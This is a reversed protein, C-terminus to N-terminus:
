SLFVNLMIIIHFPSRVPAFAFAIHKYSIHITICVFFFTTLAFIVLILKPCEFFYLWTSNSVQNTKLFDETKENLSQLSVSMSGRRREQEVKSQRKFIETTNKFFSDMKKRFFSSKRELPSKGISHLDFESQSVRRTLMTQDLSLKRERGKLLHIKKNEPDKQVEVDVTEEPIGEIEQSDELSEEEVKSIENRIVNTNEHLIDLKQVISEDNVESNVDNYNLIIHESETISSDNHTTPVLVPNIASLPEITQQGEAGNSEDDFFLEQENSHKSNTIKSGRPARVSNNMRVTRLIEKIKLNEQIAKVDKLFSHTKEKDANKVTKEKKQKHRLRDM